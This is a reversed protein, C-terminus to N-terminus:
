AVHRIDGSETVPITVTIATGRGAPRAVEVTGQIESVLRRIIWLGLGTDGVRSPSGGDRGELYAIRAADLGCGEDEVTISVSRADNAAALRVRGGAPSAHCANLLLNLIAQRVAGARIPIETAIQNDWILTLDRRQVEPKILLGLDDIDVPKLARETSEIRYTILASRVVDRIGSLGRELLSLSRERAKRDEGHRRLTDIANFLGGLPNNIEHAMGSALRGLSSLQEQEALRVALGEREHMANVLANYRRFLQGFESSEAGLQNDPIPAAPNSIGQHLHHTLVQLPRLIRRVSFYGIAALGLAFAANTGILTWLVNHRERFLAAVDFEAYIAGIVLGQYILVRRAGALERKDDLWVNQDGAFRGLTEAPMHSYSPVIRPDDAALVAGAGNAVITGNIKLGRYLSRARDLIDFTEWVDERLVPPILSSSLGDLYAAALEQFHRRQTEDLRALVRDTIVGSVALMLAAVLIPVKAVVPWQSLRIPVRRM